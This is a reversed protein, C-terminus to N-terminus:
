DHSSSRKSKAVLSNSCANQPSNFAFAFAVSQSLLPRADPNQINSIAMSITPHMNSVIATEHCLRMVRSRHHSCQLRLRSGGSLAGQHSELEASAALYTFITSHDSSSSANM